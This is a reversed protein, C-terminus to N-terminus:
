KPQGFTGDPVICVLAMFGTPHVLQRMAKLHEPGLFSAIKLILEEPLANFDGRDKEVVKPMILADSAVLVDKSCVQYANISGNENTALYFMDIITYKSEIGIIKSVPLNPDNIEPMDWVAGIKPDNNCIINKMQTKEAFYIRTEGSKISGYLFDGKEHLSWHKFPAISDIKTFSSFNPGQNRYSVDVFGKMAFRNIAFMFEVHKIWKDYRAQEIGQKIEVMSKEFKANM